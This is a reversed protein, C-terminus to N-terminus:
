RTLDEGPEHEHNNVPQLRRLQAVSYCADGLYGLSQWCLQTLSTVPQLMSALMADRSLM